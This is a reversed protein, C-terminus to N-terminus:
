REFSVAALNWVSVALSLIEVFYAAKCILAQKDWSVVFYKLLLLPTGVMLLVLNAVTISLLFM